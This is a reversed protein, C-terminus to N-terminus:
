GPGALLARLTTINRGGYAAAETALGALDPATDRLRLAKLLAPLNFGSVMEIRPDRGMAAVLNCPTGGPMDTLVLVGAGADVEDIAEVMRRALRDRGDAANVELAIVQPQPGLIMQAAELAAKAMSGHCCIVIGIRPPETM